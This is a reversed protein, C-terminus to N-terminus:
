NKEWLRGKPQYDTVEVLAGKERGRKVLDDFAKESKLEDDTPKEVKEKELTTKNKSGKTRGM